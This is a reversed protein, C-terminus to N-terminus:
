TYISDIRICLVVTCACICSLTFAIAVRCRVAPFLVLHEPLTLLQKGHFGDNYRSKTFCKYSIFIRYNINSLHKNLLNFSQFYAHIFLIMIGFMFRRFCSHGLFLEFIDFLQYDFFSPCYLSMFSLFSLYRGV